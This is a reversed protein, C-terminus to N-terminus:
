RFGFGHTPPENVAHCCGEHRPATTSVDVPNSLRWALRNPLRCYLFYRAWFRTPFIDERGRFLSRFLRIKEAPTGPTPSPPCYTM